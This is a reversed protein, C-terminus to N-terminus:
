CCRVRKGRAEFFEKVYQERTLVPHGARACHELYADYDPAGVVRRIVSALRM